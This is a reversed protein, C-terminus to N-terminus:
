LRILQNLEFVPLVVGLVVLLVIMGMVVIMAPELITIM